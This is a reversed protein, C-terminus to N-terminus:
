NKCNYSQIIIQIKYKIQKKTIFKTANGLLHGESQYRRLVTTYGEDCCTEPLLQRCLLACRPLFSQSTPNPQRGQFGQQRQAKTPRPATSTAIIIGQSVKRVNQLDETATSCVAEGQFCRGTWRLQLVDPTGLHGWAAPGVKASSSECTDNAFRAVVCRCEFVPVGWGGWSTRRSPSVPSKPAGINQPFMWIDFQNYISLQARSLVWLEHIRTMIYIANKLMRPKINKKFVEIGHHFPSKFNGASQQFEPCLVFLVEPLQVM